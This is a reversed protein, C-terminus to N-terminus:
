LNILHHLDLLRFLSNGQVRKQGTLCPIVAYLLYIAYSTLENEKILQFLVDEITM